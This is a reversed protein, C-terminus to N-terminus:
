THEESRAAAQDAFAQAVLPDRQVAANFQDITMGNQEALQTLAQVVEAPTAKIGQAQAEGKKIREDILTRLVQPALRARVEPTDKLGTTRMVLQMRVILDIKSIPDDNVVAVIQLSDQARVGPALACVGALLALAFFRFLRSVILPAGSVPGCRPLARVVPDLPM